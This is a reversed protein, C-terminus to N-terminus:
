PTGPLVQQLRGRGGVKNLLGRDKKCKLGKPSLNECTRGKESLNLFYVVLEAGHVTAGLYLAEAGCAVVGLNVVHYVANCRL